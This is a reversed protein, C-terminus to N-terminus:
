PQPFTHYSPHAYRGANCLVGLPPPLGVVSPVNTLEDQLCVCFCM